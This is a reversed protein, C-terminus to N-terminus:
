TIYGLVRNVIDLGIDIDDGLDHATEREGAVVIFGGDHPWEWNIATIELGGSWDGHMANIRGDEYVYVTETDSAGLNCKYLKLLHDAPILIIEDLKFSTTTGSIQQLYLSMCVNALLSSDINFRGFHPITIKGLEVLRWGTNSVYVIENLKEYNQTASSSGQGTRLQVGVTGADVKMRGLVFWNGLYSYCREATPEHNALKSWWVKTLSSPVSTVQLCNSSTGAPSATADNVFSGAVATGVEAEWSADFYSNVWSYTNSGLYRQIGLWLRYLATAPGSFFNSIAIRSNLSGYLVGGPNVTIKGGTCNVNSSNIYFSHNRENWSEDRLFGIQYIMHGRGLLPTMASGNVPAADFQYIVAQKINEGNSYVRFMAGNNLNPDAFYNIVRQQISLLTEVNTRLTADTGTLGIQFTDMVTGDGVVTTRWTDLLLFITSQRLDLLTSEGMTIFAMGDAM